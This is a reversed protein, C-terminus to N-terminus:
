QESKDKANDDLSHITSCNRCIVDVQVGVIEGEDNGQDYAKYEWDDNCGCNGCILHLRARVM